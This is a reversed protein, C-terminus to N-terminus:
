ASVRVATHSISDHPNDNLSGNDSKGARLAQGVAFVLNSWSCCAVSM